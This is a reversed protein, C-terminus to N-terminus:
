RGGSPVRLSLQERLDSGAELENMGAGGFRFNNGGRNRGRGGQRFRQDDGFSDVTYLLRNVQVAAGVVQQVPSLLLAILNTLYGILNPPVYIIDNERVEVNARSYGGKLMDDYDFELALPHVPDARILRVSDEDATLQPVAQFVVDFLSTGGTFQQRGGRGVEGEVYYFKSNAVGLQVDVQANTIYERFRRTLTQAVDPLTLGTIYIEGILPVDIVGDMRISFSGNLEANMPDQVLISDGIGLYYQENADGAFRQGFGRQNLLSQVRADDQTACGPLGLCVALLSLLVAPAAGAHTCHPRKRTM